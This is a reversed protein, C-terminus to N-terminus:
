FTNRVNKNKKFLKRTSPLKKGITRPLNKVKDLQRSMSSNSSASSTSEDDMDTDSTSYNSRHSHHSSPPASMSVLPTMVDSRESEDFDDASGSKSIMTSEFGGDGLGPHHHVLVDGVEVKEDSTTIHVCRLTVYTKTLAKGNRLEVEMLRKRLLQELSFKANGLHDDKGKSNSDYIDVSVHYRAPDVINNFDRSENWNPMCDDKILSTKWPQSTQQESSNILRIICYLDPVDNKQGFRRKRITFGRGRLTTIRISQGGEEYVSSYLSSPTDDNAQPDEDSKNGVTAAWELKEEESQMGTLMVRFELKAGKDGIPRTQTITHKYASLLEDHTVILKGLEGNGRTGNAGDGDILTFAIDNRSNGANNNKRVFKTMSAALSSRRQRQNGGNNSNSVPSTPPSSFAASAAELAAKENDQQLMAATLPIHFVCDYMPNLADIGPYDSVVGTYFKKKHESGEGYVCKIYTAADERPLPIDFAIVLSSSCLSTLYLTCLTLKTETKWLLLFFLCYILSAVVKGKTIIITALGCLANKGEYKESRLGDPFSHLQESLHFLEASLTIYCGTKEGDMVLELECEGDNPERFLERVTIEVKGLSDDPDM